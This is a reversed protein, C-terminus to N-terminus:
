PAAKRWAKVLGQRVAQGLKEPMGSEPIIQRKENRKTGYHHFVHHGSVQAQVTKPDLVVVQIAAPANKLARGGSKTPAWPTGDPTTGAAASARLSAELEAAVIPAAQEAVLGLGRVEAIIRDLEAEGSM